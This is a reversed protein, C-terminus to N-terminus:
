RQAKLTEIEQVQAALAASMDQYARDTGAALSTLREIEASSEARVAAILRDVYGEHYERTANMDMRCLVAERNQEVEPPPSAKIFGACGCLALRCTGIHLKASHGCKCKDETTPRAEGQYLEPNLIFPHFACFKKGPEPSVECGRYMCPPPEPTVPASTGIDEILDEPHQKIGSPPAPTFEALALAVHRAADLYGRHQGVRYADNIDIVPPEHTINKRQLERIVAVAVADAVDLWPADSRRDYAVFAAQRATEKITM